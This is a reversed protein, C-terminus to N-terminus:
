GLFTEFIFVHPLGVLLLILSLYISFKIKRCHKLASIYGEEGEIAFQLQYNKAHSIFVFSYICCIVYSM